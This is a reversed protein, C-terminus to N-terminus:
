HVFRRWRFAQLYTGTTRTTSITALPLISSGVRPNETRQEVLQAVQGVLRRVSQNALAAVFLNGQWDPFADGRYEGFGGPAISPTWHLVPQEMGDAETYPSVYAGTYDLGYTIAPWGYNKGPEIRNLEDGGQPGHEHLWVTGDAAVLLGQQNRHGYSWIDPLADDRNIFPNDDPVSGDTNVRILKGFHNDLTQAGKRYDFGDGVTILLTGDPLFALRGAYHFETDRAPTATFIPQVSQLRIAKSDRASSVRPM